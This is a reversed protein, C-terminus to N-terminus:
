AALHFERKEIKVAKCEWVLEVLAEGISDYSLRTIQHIQQRTRCGSKIAQYVKTFPDAKALMMPKREVQQARATARRRAMDERRCQKCYINLGDCRGSTKLTTNHGFESTRKRQHCRGCVKSRKRNWQSDSCLKM